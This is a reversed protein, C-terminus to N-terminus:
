KGKVPSNYPSHFHTKVSLFIYQTTISLQDFEMTKHRAARLSGKNTFSDVKNVEPKM